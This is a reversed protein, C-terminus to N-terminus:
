SENGQINDANIQIYDAVSYGTFEGFSVKYWKITDDDTMVTELIEVVDGEVLEHVVESDYTTGTRMRLTGDDLHVTGYVKAKELQECKLTISIPSSDPSDNDFKFATNVELDDNQMIRYAYYFADSQNLEPAPKTFNLASALQSFTMDAKIEPNIYGSGSVIITSIVSADSITKDVTCFTFPYDVYKLQTLDSLQISYQDGFDAKLDAVTKGIYDLAYHKTKTDEVTTTVDPESTTNSVSPPAESTSRKKTVDLFVLSCAYLFVIVSLIILCVHIVNSKRDVTLLEKEEPDLDIYDYTSGCKECVNSGKPMKAGCSKCKKM